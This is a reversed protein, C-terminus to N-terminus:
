KDPNKDAPIEQKKIEIALLNSYYATKKVAGKQSFYVILKKLRDIDGSYIKAAQEMSVIGNVSDNYTFYITALSVWPVESTPKYYAALRLLKIASGTDENFLLIRSLEQYSTVASSDCRIAQRFAYAASDILDITTYAKGLNFWASSYDANAM